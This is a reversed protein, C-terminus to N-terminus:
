REPLADDNSAPSQPDSRAATPSGRKTAPNAFEDQKIRRDVASSLNVIISKKAVRHSPTMPLDSVIQIYRPIQFSPLYELAWGVLEPILIDHGNAEILFLLMEQEGVEAPVGVVASQEVGPHANFVSEVEWSSINEGRVRVSDNARGRFNVQGEAGFDGLDGTYWWGDTASQNATGAFNLYGPTILGPYRGRVAIEGLGSEEDSDIRMEFWPLPFGVGYDPGKRNVTLVSSAETMGYCEQVTFGFRAESERWVESTVGGGWSVRIHHERELPHKPQSLLIQLIGGLHHVRTARVETVEPWFRSASFGDSFVLRAESLFPILLVEAGGIHCFPEWVYLVDGSVLPGAAEIAGCAAVRLMVDTVLVGKAPGTTGSTYMIACVDDAISVEANERSFDWVRLAEFGVGLEALSSTLALESGTAAESASISAVALETDAEAIFHTAPCDSFIHELPKGRLRVNLPVWIAGMEFLAFIIASHAISNRVGVAVCSSGSLGADRLVVATQQVLRYFEDLTATQDDMSTYLRHPAERAAKELLGPISQNALFSAFEVDSLVEIATDDTPLSDRSEGILNTLPAKRLFSSPSFEGEKGNTWGEEIVASAVLHVAVRFLLRM